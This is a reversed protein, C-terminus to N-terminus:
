HLIVCDTGNPCVEAHNGTGDTSLSLMAFGQTFLSVVAWVAVTVVFTAFCRRSLSKLCRYLAFVIFLLPLTLGIFLKFALGPRPPDSSHEPSADQHDSTFDLVEPHDLLPQTFGAAPLPAAESSSSAVPSPWVAWAFLAWSIVFLLTFVVRLLVNAQYTPKVTEIQHHRHTFEVQSRRFHFIKTVGYRRVFRFLQQLPHEGEVPPCKEAVKPRSGSLWFRNVYRAGGVTGRLFQPVWKHGTISNVDQFTFKLGDRAYAYCDEDPEPTEIPSPIEVDYKLEGNEDYCALVMEKVRKSSCNGGAAQDLKSVLSAFSDLSLDHGYRDHLLFDPVCSEVGHASYEKLCGQRLLYAEDVRHARTVREIVAAFTSTGPTWPGALVSLCKSRQLMIDRSRSNRDFKFLITLNALSKVIDRVRVLDGEVDVFHNGCFSLARWPAVDFTLLVGCDRARQIVDEIDRPAPFVGDDGEFLGVRIMHELTDGTIATIIVLNTLLNGLSTWFDGSMRIHHFRPIVWGPGNVRVFERQLCTTIFDREFDQHAAALYARHEILQKLGYTICSEFSSFDTEAVLPVNRFKRELLRTIGDQDQFKVNCERTVVVIRHLIELMAFIQVGRAWPPLTMIYRPPKRMHQVYCEMKVFSKYAENNYAAYAAGPDAEVLQFGDRIQQAEILNRGELTRELMESREEPALPPVAQLLQCMDDMVATIRETMYRKRVPLSPFLRKCLGAIMTGFDGYDPLSPVVGQIRFPAARTDTSCRAQVSLNDPAFTVDRLIDRWNSPPVVRYKHYAWGECEHCWRLKGGSRAAGTLLFACTSLHMMTKLPDKQKDFWANVEKSNSLAALINRYHKEPDSCRSTRNAALVFVDPVSVTHIYPLQPSTWTGDRRVSVEVLQCGPGFHVEFSSPDISGEFSFSYLEDTEQPPLYGARVADAITDQADQVQKLLDQQQEASTKLEEKLVAVEQKFADKDGLAQQVSQMNGAAVLQAKKQQRSVRVQKQKVVKAPRPTTTTTQAPAPKAVAPTPTAPKQQPPASNGFANFSSKPVIKNQSQGLQAQHDLISQVTTIIDKVVPHPSPPADLDKPFPLDFFGPRAYMIGLRQAQSIALDMVACFANPNRFLCVEALVEFNRPDDWSGSLMDADLEDRSGQFHVSHWKDMLCQMRDLLTAIDDACRADVFCVAVIGITDRAIQDNLPTDTNPDFWESVKLKRPLSLPGPNQEVGAIQLLMRILALSERRVNAVKLQARRYGEVEHPPLDRPPNNYKAMLQRIADVLFHRQNELFEPINLKVSPDLDFNFFVYDSFYDNANLREAVSTWIGFRDDAGVVERLNRILVRDEVIDRAVDDYQKGLYEMVWRAPRKFNKNLGSKSSKGSFSIDLVGSLSLIAWVLSMACHGVDIDALAEDDLGNPLFLLEIKARREAREAAYDMHKMKKLKEAQRIAALIQNRLDTPMHLDDSCEAGEEREHTRMKGREIARRRIAKGKKEVVDGLDRLDGGRSKIAAIARKVDVKEMPGAHSMTARVAEVDEPRFRALPNRERHRERRAQRHARQHRQKHTLRQAGPEADVVRCSAAEPSAEVDGARVTRPSAEM